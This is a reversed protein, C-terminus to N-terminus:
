VAVNGFIALNPYTDSSKKALDSGLPTDHDMARIAGEKSGSIMNGMVAAYGAESIASIGIGINAKRVINNNATVDRLYKGWGLLIGVTPANEVVNSSIVTDAEAHIGVGKSGERIFLNRILNGQIIALRGGDNFNTVSIGVAARDVLNNAILAGEFGFEAYIAVEGLRQCSNGLIQCNSGANSRIASYACDTIRNAMAIVSGARYINIGNGNQGSGGSRARIREIRNMSVITGDEGNSSRWVQIGNNGCDLIHNHSIELQGADESFVAAQAAENFENDTIRGSCNNLTLGNLLSNSFRCNRIEIHQINRLSVLALGGEDPAFPRRNGNFSMGDIRINKHDEGTVFTSNGQYQIVSQRPVGVLHSNPRLKLKDVYYDGAPFHLPIRARSTKDIANQLRKTQDDLSATKVGFDTVYVTGRLRITRAESGRTGAATAVVGAGLGLGGSLIQRRDVKM